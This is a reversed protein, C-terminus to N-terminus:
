TTTSAVSKLSTEKYFNIIQNETTYYPFLNDVDCFFMRKNKEKIKTRFVPREFEDIKVFEIDINM